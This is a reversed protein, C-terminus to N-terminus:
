KSKEMLSVVTLTVLDGDKVNLADKLMEPAIIEIIYKSHVRVDDAPFVIAAPIGQITIPLLHGSCFKSDPSTLEFGSKVKLDEIRHRQKALIEQRSKVRKKSATVDKGKEKREELQQKAKELKEMALSVREEQKVM